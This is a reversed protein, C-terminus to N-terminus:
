STGEQALLMRYTGPTVNLVQPSEHVNDLAVRRASPHIHGLRVLTETIADRGLYEEDAFGLFPGNIPLGQRDTKGEWTNSYVLWGRRPNGNTDNSCVVRVALYDSSM